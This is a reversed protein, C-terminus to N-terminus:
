ASSRGQTHSVAGSLYCIRSATSYLHQVKKNCYKCHASFLIASYHVSICRKFNDNSRCFIARFCSSTSLSRCQVRTILLTIRSTVFRMLAFKVQSKVDRCSVVRKVHRARRSWRTSCHQEVLEVCGFHLRIHRTTDLRSTVLWASNPSYGSTEDSAHTRIM